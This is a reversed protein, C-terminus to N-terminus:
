AGAKAIAKECRTCVMFGTDKEVQGDNTRRERNCASVVSGEAFFHATNTSPHRQYGAPLHEPYGNAM